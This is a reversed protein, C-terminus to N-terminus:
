AHWKKRKVCFIYTGGTVGFLLVNLFYGVVAGNAGYYRGGFYTTCGNLVAGALSLWLFPEQKHARLYVAESSVLHNMMAIALLLMTPFWDLLRDGFPIGNVRATMFLGIFTMQIVALLVFSQKLSQFFVKDLQAYDRKAVLSGFPAAKTSLWAFCVTSMSDIIKMTMGMRGAVEKGQYAFLVPNFLRLIFYGSLSSLTIKWQLPWIERRWSVHITKDRAALLDTLFGRKKLVLWVAAVLFFATNMVPAALLQGGAAFTAWILVTGLVQQVLRVRAIEAVLGCGEIVALIPSLWLNFATILVAWSWAGRWEVSQFLDENSSFFHIGIPLLVVVLLLSLITYGKVSSVLLSALRAKSTADGTLRGDITWELRAKEHSAFQLVVFAIGLDFFVQLGLLSDFTYFYGQEEKSLFHAVCYLTLPMSLVGWFRSLLTFFIAHDVGAFM